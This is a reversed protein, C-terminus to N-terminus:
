ALKRRIMSKQWSMEPGYSPRYIQPHPATAIDYVYDTERTLIPNVM